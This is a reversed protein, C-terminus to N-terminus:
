RTEVLRVDVQVIGLIRDLVLGHIACRSDSSLLQPAYDDLWCLWCVPKLNQLRAAPPTM